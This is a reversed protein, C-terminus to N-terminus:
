RAANRRGAKWEPLGEVPSDLYGVVWYKGDKMEAMLYHRPSGSHVYPTQSLRDL